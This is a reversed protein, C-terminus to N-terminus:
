KSVLEREGQPSKLPHRPPIPKGRRLIYSSGFLIWEAFLGLGGLVALWKWLDVARQTFRAIAPLGSAANGPPKWEFDALDPLTLSLVRERDGSRIHVISPRSAFLQLTQDRVTFPVAAGRDDTVRLSEPQKQLPGRSREGPDLTVTAAGVPAATVDLLRVAEPSLWHLLNAFLLPTTAEFKLQGELPDFGIVSIKPHSDNSSRAVVIPGEAVSLVPVDEDFTQFVDATPIRTGRAHLGAGLATESHWTKVAADNIVAKVPLPSHANLPRIWLSAIKPQEEPAVQDLLMVDAAPRATYEAPTFFKVDLRHNSELLPKLVEPRSTFVALKLAGTRPLELVARHDTELDDGPTLQATLQGATNTTFNYEVGTEEGPQLRVSRPAFVTGAFKTALHVTRRQSGYNKLTVIAQWSSPDQENRRVGIRRIGCHERGSEVAIIRLNTLQPTVSEADAILQPGIYVIEGPRGVSWTQAHRAFSLVQEINLASFGPSSGLVAKTVQARDSTFSTVPTALGDARVLMVRDLAPLSALYRQAMREEKELLTGQPSRQATWASTDLLLIHDRGRRERAGWQLEAIALLLLLLSLLQLVLSWPERMRTRSQREEVRVAPTWFRLTSVIKKRKARDLLYLATIIGGLAGLLALFEGVSLNLFFM